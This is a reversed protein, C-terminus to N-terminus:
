KAVGTSNKLLVSQGKVVLEAGVGFFLPRNVAGHGSRVGGFVPLKQCMAWDKLTQPGYNEGSAEAGGIFDGLVIAKMKSRSQTLQTLLRDLRYAREGIEELFLIKGSLKPSLETGWHSSLTVLNGGVLPAKLTKVKKALANLPELDQFVLERSTGFLLAKLEEAESNAYKGKGMGDLLPGHCSIWNWKQLLFLHLSTIDSYGILLKRKAPPKLKLLSPVLRLSGYGGRLCWVMKSDKAYLAKKLNQFRYEDSNSLYPHGSFLDASVRPVLGWSKLFECAQTLELASTGSGPAVIDVIDNTELKNWARM